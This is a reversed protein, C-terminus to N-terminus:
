PDVNITDQFAASEVPELLEKEWYMGKEKAMSHFVEDNFNV